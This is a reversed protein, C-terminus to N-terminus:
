TNERALTLVITMDGNTTSATTMNLQLRNATGNLLAEGAVTSAVRSTLVASSQHGTILDTTVSGDFVEVDCINSAGAVVTTTIKCDLVRTGKPLNCIQKIGTGTDFLAAPIKVYMFQGRADRITQPLRRFNVNTRFDEAAM